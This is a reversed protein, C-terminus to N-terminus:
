PKKVRLRASAFLLIVVALALGSIVAGVTRPPTDGFRAELRHEGAPVSVLLAGTPEAPEVAVLQGDVTVQWGPFYFLNIQVMGPATMNVTATASSGRSEQEQVQGAGAAIEFRTLSSTRGHEEAYAPAAYDATMATTTFPQTVWQTYAIMDPHEAEFRFVARGDERWPEV